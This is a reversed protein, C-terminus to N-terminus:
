VHARGIKMPILNKKYVNYYYGFGAYKNPQQIMLSNLYAIKGQKDKATNTKAEQLLGQLRDDLSERQVNDPNVLNTKTLADEETSPTIDDENASSESPRKIGTRKQRMSVLDHMHIYHPRGDFKWRIDMIDPKNPSIWRTKLHDVMRQDPEWSLITGSGTTSPKLRANTWKGPIQNLATVAKVDCEARLAAVKPDSPITWTAIRMQCLWEEKALEIAVFNITTNGVKPKFKGWWLDSSCM